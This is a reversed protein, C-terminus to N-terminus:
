RAPVPERLPSVMERDIQAYDRVHTLWFTLVSFVVVNFVMVERFGVADGVRGILLAGLPVGLMIGLLYISMARGRIEDPVSAQVFTNLSTGVLVHALGCVGYAVLGVGFNTTLPILGLGIAYIVIGVKTLVTRRFRAAVLLVYVSMMLAGVGLATILWANDKAEHGYLRFAVAAAIATISQGSL